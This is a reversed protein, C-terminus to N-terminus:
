KHSSFVSHLTFHWQVTPMLVRVTCYEKHENCKLGRNFLILPSDMVPCFSAVQVELYFFFVVRLTPFVHISYCSMPPVCQYNM